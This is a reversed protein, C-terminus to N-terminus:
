VMEGKDPQQTAISFLVEEGLGTVLESARGTNLDVSILATTAWVSVVAQGAGMLGLGYIPSDRVLDSLDRRVRFPEAGDYHVSSLTKNWGDV